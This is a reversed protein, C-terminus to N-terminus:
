KKETTFCKRFLAEIKNRMEARKEVNLRSKRESGVVDYIEKTTMYGTQKKCLEQRIHDYVGVNFNAETLEQIHNILSIADSTM